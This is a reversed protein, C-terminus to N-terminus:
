PSTLGTALTAAIQPSAFSWHAHGFVLTSPALPPIRNSPPLDGDLLLTIDSLVQRASAYYGHYLFSTDVSDTNITDLGAGFFAMMGVPEYHNVDRSMALATDRTCYYYTVRESHQIIYPVLNNFELAGVDPAALIVQGFVQEKPMQGRMHLEYVARLLLDNGLSHALLHLKPPHDASKTARAASILSQLVDAMQSSSEEIRQRDQQYQQMDAASPWCMAMASGPFDLDYKLQAARLVAFDFDTNFGHIYLLVDHCTAEAFLEDRSAIELKEIAFHKTPDLREWWAPQEITGRRHQVPVDVICRGCTLENAIESSFRLHDSAPDAQVRNTAFYVIRQTPDKSASLPEWASPSAALEDRRAYASDTGRMTEERVLRRKFEGRINVAAEDTRRSIKTSVSALDFDRRDVSRNKVPPDAAIVASQRRIDDVREVTEHEVVMRRRAQETVTVESLRTAAVQAPKGPSKLQLEYGLLHRGSPLDLDSYAVVLHLESTAKIQKALEQRLLFFGNDDRHADGRSRVATIGHRDTAVTYARIECIAEQENPALLLSVDLRDGPPDSSGDPVLRVSTITTADATAVLWLLTAAWCVKSALRILMRKASQGWQM